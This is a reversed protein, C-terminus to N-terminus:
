WYRIMNEWLRPDTHSVEQPVMPATILLTKSGPAAHENEMVEAPSWFTGEEEIVTGLPPLTGCQMLIDLYYMAKLIIDYAPPAVVAYLLDDQMLEVGEPGLWMGSIFFDRPDLNAAQIAAVAGAGMIDPTHVYVAVVDDGYRTLLDSTRNFSDDNNWRGEGQVVTLQPHQEMVSSFGQNALTTFMDVLSGTIEIVVGEPVQGGHASRIGEIMQEAARRSSDRICVTVFLDVFGGEPSTDVAVIPIGANNLTEIGPVLTVLDEAGALIFGDIGQMLFNDIANIIRLSDADANVITIQHGMEEAAQTAGHVFAQIYGATPMKIVMGIHKGSGSADGGSGGDAPETQAAPTAATPQANGCAVLTASLCVLLAVLTILYSKKMKKM